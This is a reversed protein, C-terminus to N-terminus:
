YDALYQHVQSISMSGEGVGSAVRQISGSCVDGAAFIGPSSTELIMPSRELEWAENDAIQLGTCFFGKDGLQVCNQLCSGAVVERLLKGPCM